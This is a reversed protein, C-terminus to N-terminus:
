VTKGACLYGWWWCAVADRIIGTEEDEDEQQEEEEEEGKKTTTTLLTSSFRSSKTKPMPSPSHTACDGSYVLLESTTTTIKLNPNKYGSKDDDM